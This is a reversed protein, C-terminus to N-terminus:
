LTTAVRDVFRDLSLGAPLSTNVTLGKTRIKWVLVLIVLLLLNPPDVPSAVQKGSGNTVAAADLLAARIRYRDGSTVAAGFRDFWTPDAAKIRGTVAAVARDAAPGAPAQVVM